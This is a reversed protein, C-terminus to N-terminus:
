HMMRSVQAGWPGRSRAEEDPDLCGSCVLSGCDPCPGRPGHGHSGRQNDKNTGPASSVKTTDAPVSKEEGAGAESKKQSADVEELYEQISRGKLADSLKVFAESQQLHIKAGIEDGAVRVEGVMSKYYSPSRNWHDYAGGSYPGYGYYEEDEEQWNEILKKQTKSLGNYFDAVKKWASDQRHKNVAYYTIRSARTGASIEQIKVINWVQNSVGGTCHKDLYGFGDRYRGLLQYEPFAASPPFANAVVFSKRTFPECARELDVEIRKPGVTSASMKEEGVESDQEDTLDYLIERLTQFAENQEEEEPSYDAYDPQVAGELSMSISLIYYNELALLAKAGNLQSYGIVIRKEGKSNTYAREVFGHFSADSEALRTRDVLEVELEFAQEM